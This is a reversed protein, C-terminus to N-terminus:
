VVTTLDDGTELVQEAPLRGESVALIDVSAEHPVVTLNGLVNVENDEEDRDGQTGGTNTSEWGVSTRSDYQITTHIVGKQKIDQWECFGATKRATM